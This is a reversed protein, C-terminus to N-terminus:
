EVKEKFKLPKKFSISEILLQINKTFVGRITFLNNIISTYKNAYDENTMEYPIKGIYDKVELTFNNAIMALILPVIEQIADADMGYWGIFQYMSPHDVFNAEKYYSKLSGIINMKIQESYNEKNLEYNFSYNSRELLEKIQPIKGDHSVLFGLTKNTINVEKNTTLIRKLVRNVETIDGSGSEIYNNYKYKSIEELLKMNDKSKDESLENIICTNELLVKYKFRIPDTLGFFYAYMTDIFFEQSEVMLQTHITPVIRKDNLRIEKYKEMSNYVSEFLSEWTAMYLKNKPAVIREYDQTISINKNNFNIDKVENVIEKLKDFFTILFYDNDIEKKLLNFMEYNYIKMSALQYKNVLSEELNDKLFAFVSINNGKRLYWGMPKEYKKKAEKESCKYYDMYLRIAYDYNEKTENNIEEEKIDEFYVKAFNYEQIRYHFRFLNKLEKDKNNDFFNMVGMNEIGSRIINATGKSEELGLIKNYILSIIVSNLNYILAYDVDIDKVDGFFGKKELLRKNDLNTRIKMSKEYLFDNLSICYSYIDNMEKFFDGRNSASYKKETQVIFKRFM